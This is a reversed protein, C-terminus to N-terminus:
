FPSRTYDTVVFNDVDPYTNAIKHHHLHYNGYITVSMGTPAWCVLSILYNGLKSRVCNGHVADHAVAGLGRVLNAILISCAIGIPIAFAHHQTRYLLWTCAAWIGFLLPVKLLYIPKREYAAHLLERPVEDMGAM